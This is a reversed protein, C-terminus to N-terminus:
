HPSQPRTSIGSSPRTSPPASTSPEPPSPSDSSAETWLSIRFPHSTAALLLADTPLFLTQHEPTHKTLDFRVITRAETPTEPDCEAWLTPLITAGRPIRLETVPHDPELPYKYARHPPM